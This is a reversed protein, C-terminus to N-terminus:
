IYIIEDGDLEETLASGKEATEIIETLVAATALNRCSVEADADLNM